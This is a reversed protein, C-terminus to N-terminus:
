VENGFNCRDEDPLDDGWPYIRGDTGRAAKEWEAESPLTVPLGTEEALWRCFNLADHWTVNVVPHDDQGRLSDRDAPRYGSEDVFSRFQAVTVPHQGIWYGPLTIEHQPLENDRAQPDQTKDSGM